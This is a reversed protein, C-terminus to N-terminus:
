GDHRFAQSIVDARTLGKAHLEEDTIAAIEQLTRVRATSIALTGFLSAIARFPAAALELLMERNSILTNDPRLPM